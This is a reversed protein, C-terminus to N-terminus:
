LGLARQVVPDASLKKGMLRAGARSLHGGDYSIWNSQKDFVPCTTEGNCILQQLDIFMDKSLVAKMYNNTELYFGPVRNRYAIREKSPIKLLDRPSIRGIAFRKSGSVLIKADTFKQINKISQPLLKAQWMKWDSALWVVDASKILDQLKTNRYGEHAACMKRDQPAIKRSLDSDLWLNGCKSSIHYTSLQIKTALQAEYLANVLDMAFSDGIVLVKRPGSPDFDHLVLKGFRSNVYKLRDHLNFNVLYRDEPKYRNLFGNSVIGALGFAGLPFLMLFVAGVFARRGVLHARRAPREILFYTATALVLSLLIYGVKDFPSPAVDKLRAFAFIPYHWLYLSYSILGIAVFFRSSLIDTVLEGSKSFWILAMTGLVPLTTLFSPHRTEKDFFVVANAVLFLGFAPMIKDLFPHSIRGWELELSALIGGALLEWARTSFMYFAFSPFKDSVFDALQLSFLLGIVLFSVLYNRAFKLVVILIVPYLLYYQEEVSLSWTHLLPKEAGAADFYGTQWWFFINAVFALAALYSKAFDVLRWPILVSWAVPLSFLIVTILAPLIRRARREYFHAFSFTGDQVGQLILSTILYGSIVFFVDVGIFGGKFPATRHIVFDAHYLIVAFVAIARLGDIEPRYKLSM